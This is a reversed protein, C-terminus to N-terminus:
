YIHAPVMVEAGVLGCGGGRWGVWISERCCGLDELIAPVLACSERVYILPLHDRKVSEDGYILAAGQVSAFESEM